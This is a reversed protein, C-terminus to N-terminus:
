LKRIKYPKVELGTQADQVASRKRKSSCRTEGVNARGMPGAREIDGRTCKAYHYPKAESAIKEQRPGNTGQSDELDEQRDDSLQQWISGGAEPASGMDRPSTKTGRFPREEVDDEGIRGISDSSLGALQNSETAADTGVSQDYPHTNREEFDHSGTSKDAAVNANRSGVDDISVVKSSVGDALDCPKQEAIDTAAKNDIYTEGGTPDLGRLRYRRRLVRMRPMAQKRELDQRHTTPIANWMNKLQTKTLQHIAKSQKQAGGSTKSRQSRAEETTLARRPQGPPQPRVLEGRTEPVLRGHFSNKSPLSQALRHRQENFFQQMSSYKEHAPKRKTGHRQGAWIDLPLSPRRPVTTETM